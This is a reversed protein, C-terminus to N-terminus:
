EGLTSRTHASALQHQAWSLMQWVACHFYKSFPNQFTCTIPTRFSSSSSSSLLSPMLYITSVYRASNDSNNNNNKDNMENPTMTEYWEFKDYCKCLLTVFNLCSLCRWAYVCVCVLVHWQLIIFMNMFFITYQQEVTAWWKNGYESLVDM